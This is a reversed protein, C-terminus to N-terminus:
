LIYPASVSLTYNVDTTITGGINSALFYFSTYSELPVRYGKLGTENFLETRQAYAGNLKTISLNYDYGSPSILFVDVYYDPLVSATTIHFYDRDLDSSLITQIADGANLQYSTSYTNNPEYYDPLAASASSITFVLLLVAVLSTITIKKMLREDERFMNILQGAKM